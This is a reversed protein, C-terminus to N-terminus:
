PAPRVHDGQEVRNSVPPQIRFGGEYYAVYLRGVAKPFGLLAADLCEKNAVLAARAFFVVALHHGLKFAPADREYAERTVHPQDAGGEDACEFVADQINVGRQQWGEGAEVRLALREFVPHLYGAAGYVYYIFLKIVAGDHHLAGYLHTVVIRDLRERGSYKLLFVPEVGFGGREHEIFPKTDLPETRANRILLRTLHFSAAVRTDSQRSLIIRGANNDPRQEYILNVFVGM